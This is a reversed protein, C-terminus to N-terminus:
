SRVFKAAFMTDSDQSSGGFLRAAEGEGFRRFSGKQSDLFSDAVAENEEYCWSCTGYVLRGGPRVFRAAETLLHLQLTNLESFGHTDSVRLRADPNRRWTGSSSCPADVLVADFGNQIHVEKGFAPPERGDWQLTRINHFGARQCRRKAEELKHTRIDTAYLAGKGQLASALAVSKGGGGACTDWVKEGPRAAVSEAIQQSARDQVEFFGSKFTECQYVGFVGSVIASVGNELWEVNLGHSKLDEDVFPKKEIHNLRIWLPARENQLELFRIVEEPTWGVCKVRHSFRTSWASPIGHALLLLPISNQVEIDTATKGEWQRQLHARWAPIDVSSGAELLMESFADEVLDKASLEKIAKWLRVETDTAETFMNALEVCREVPLKLFHFFDNAVGSERLFRRFLTTTVIRSSSFLIDSYFKRDQSGFKKEARLRESMWRDLQRPAPAEAYEQWLRAAHSLRNALRPSTESM